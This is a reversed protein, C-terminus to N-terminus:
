NLADQGAMADVVFLTEHPSIAAHIAQAERMMDQDVHLRGATDLILWRIGRRRAEELAASAVREPTRESTAFWAVGLDAALKALQDIAAPRYVDTSALLVDGGGLKAPLYRALKGATTTKGTG